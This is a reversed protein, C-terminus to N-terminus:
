VSAAIALVLLLVASLKTANLISGLNPGVAASAGWVGVAIMLAAAIWGAIRFWQMRAVPKDAAPIFALSESALTAFYFFWKGQGYRLAASGAVGDIMRLIQFDELYDLLGAALALIVIISLRAGGVLSRASFAFLAVYLPIFVFDYYQLKSVWQRNDMGLKTDAKGLLTDVFDLSPALEMALGPKQDFPPDPKPPKINSELRGMYWSLGVLLIVLAAMLVRIMHM